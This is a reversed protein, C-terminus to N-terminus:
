KTDGFNGFDVQLDGTASIENGVQDHGFFTIEAITTIITPSNILEVLPTEMKATNRVLVFSMSLTGGVPVTGTMGGDFGYPVDVGQVNRGDARIYTVHYRTITVDSNTTPGTPTGATTVDKPALRFQVQGGDGFVTPCPTKPTCPDPSTVNTIVDSSLTNGATGASGGRVATLQDIVLFVSARGQRVVDGCSASAAAVAAVAVLRTAVRAIVVTTRAYTKVHM